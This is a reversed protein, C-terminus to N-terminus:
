WWWAAANPGGWCPKCASNCTTRPQRKSAPWPKCFGCWIYIAPDRQCGFPKMAPLRLILYAMCAALRAARLYKSAGGGDQLMSASRDVVLRVSLATDEIYRKVYHHDHRASVKWDIHKLPDGPQYIKHHDFDTSVGKRRSFHAGHLLGDVTRRAYLELHRLSERAQPQLLDNLSYVNPSSTPM